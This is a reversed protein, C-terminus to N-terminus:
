ILVCFKFIPEVSGDLFSFWSPVPFVSPKKLVVWMTATKRSWTQMPLGAEQLLMLVVCYEHFVTSDALNGGVGARDETAGQCGVSVLPSLMIALLFGSRGRM